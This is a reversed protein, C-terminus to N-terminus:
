QGLTTRLAALPRRLMWYALVTWEGEIRATGKLGVRHATPATMSARLRYAYSGDPRQVADHALYRVQAEVPDLPSANLYLKVPAGPELHIADALPLWAEVERDDPAAIRLIREGTSVPRGIWESPDDFLVVGDQPALVRTRTLQDNLYGVEARKEEIKGILVALQTRSRADNLAQQSTQRYEAEATALMQQAVTVRSQILAEDFGLLPQGQSVKQNPQVHFTEVVGDLPARVTIPHAPVLEGPALVSLHIPVCLVAATLALWRWRGQRWWAHGPEGRWHTALRKRLGRWGTPRSPNLALSAHLWTALWEGLLRQEDESWPTDRALLLAQSTRKPEAPSAMPLWLAHAPWWHAWEEALAEPLSAATLPRAGEDGSQTLHDSLRNLWQVYPANAEPQVVGSLTHVGEQASWLAAQRYPSLHITDNVLLFGLEHSSQAQRARRALDMMVALFQVTRIAPDHASSM